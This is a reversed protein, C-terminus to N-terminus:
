GFSVRWPQNTGDAYCDGAASQGDYGNLLWDVQDSAGNAGGDFDIWGWNGDSAGCNGNEYVDDKTFFMRHVVGYSAYSAGGLGNVADGQPFDIRGDPPPVFLITDGGQMPVHVVPPHGIDLLGKQANYTTADLQGYTPDPTEGRQAKLWNQYWIWQMVHANQLCFSMPRLGLPNVYGYKVATLSYPQTDGGFGFLGGFRTDAYKRAEVTVYGTGPHNPDPHAACSPSGPVIQGTQRYLYDTYIEGVGLNTNCAPKGLAALSAQRLATADTATMITRRASRMREFDLGLLSAAIVGILSVVVATRPIGRKNREEPRAEKPATM